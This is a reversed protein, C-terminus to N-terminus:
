LIQFELSYKPFDASFVSTMLIFNAVTLIVNYQIYWMVKWKNFYWM